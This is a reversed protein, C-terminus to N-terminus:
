SDPLITHEEDKAQVAQRLHKEVMGAQRSERPLYLVVLLILGVATLALLTWM